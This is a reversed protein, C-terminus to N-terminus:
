TPRGPKFAHVRARLASLGTPADAYRIFAFAQAIARVEAALDARSAAVREAYELPGESPSRPLGVRALRECFTGYIRLAPPLRTVARNRLLLLTLLGLLAGMVSTLWLVLRAPTVEEMGLAELLGRQREASYGLVWNSWHYNASDWLQRAGNFVRAAFGASDLMRLPGREGAFSNIGLSVREPAVAGTPDVRVWGRTELYVEAWAHADRQRVLFYDSMTNYEGGQYGTVVRAPVGAARMLVVFAAAFHECFGQRTDFLFGDIPDNPLVPPTLTYSFAQQRFNVLAADVIQSPALGQAMWRAALARSRPHAQKPLALAAARDAPSLDPLSYDLASELRYRLQRKIPETAVLDRGRQARSKADSYTVADLAPLWREGHAELLIDYRLRRGEVVVPPAGTNEIAGARWTRGDTAWLVPGRWYLDRASPTSDLFAVRFAVEDSTGLRAIRGISMEDSLGTVAQTSDTPVGWLPGPLRPFLVFCVAMLPLSELVMMAGLRACARAPLRAPANVRVLASTTLMTVGLLYLATPIAQSFLFNTVVLFYTLLCVAYYDRGNRLELLKLGTMASLMAVGADRGLQGQYVAYILVFTLVALGQLAWWLLPRHREPLPLRGLAGLMRWSVCAAVGLSLALPLRGAHPALALAVAGLCWWLDSATLTRATSM